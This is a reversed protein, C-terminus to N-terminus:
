SWQPNNKRNFLQVYEYIKDRIARLRPDHAQMGPIMMSVGTTVDNDWGFMQTNFRRLDSWVHMAIELVDGQYELTKVTRMTEPTYGCTYNVAVKITKISQVLEETDAQITIM